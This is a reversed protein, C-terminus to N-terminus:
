NKVEVCICV